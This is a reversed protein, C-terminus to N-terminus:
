NIARVYFPSSPVHVGEVKVNIVYLGTTTPKWKIKFTGDGNDDIDLQASAREPPKITVTDFLLFYYFLYVNHDSDGPDEM